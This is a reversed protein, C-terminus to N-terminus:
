TPNTCSNSLRPSFAKLFSWWSSRYSFRLHSGGPEKIDAESIDLYPLHVMLFFAQEFPGTIEAALQRTQEAKPIAHATAHVPSKTARISIAGFLTARFCNARWKPWM